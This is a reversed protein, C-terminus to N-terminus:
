EVRLIDIDYVADDFILRAKDHGHDHLWALAPGLKQGSWLVTDHEDLVHFFRKRRTQQVDCHLVIM